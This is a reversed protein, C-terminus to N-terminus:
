EVKVVQICAKQYAQKRETIWYMLKLLLLDKLVIKMKKEVFIGSISYIQRCCNAVEKVYRLIFYKRFITKVKDFGTNCKQLDNRQDRNRFFEEWSFIDFHYTIKPKINFVSLTCHHSNLFLCLKWSKFEGSINFNRFLDSKFSCGKLPRQLSWLNNLLRSQWSTLILPKQTM